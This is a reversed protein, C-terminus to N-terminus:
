SRQTVASPNIATTPGSLPPTDLSAHQDLRHGHHPYGTDVVPCSTRLSSPSTSGAILSRASTPSTASRRRVPLLPNQANANTTHSLPCASASRLARRKLSATTNRPARTLSHHRKRRPRLQQRLPHSAVDLIQCRPHRITRWIRRACHIRLHRRQRQRPTNRKQCRHAAPPLQPTCRPAASACDVQNPPPDSRPKTRSGASGPSEHTRPAPIRACTTPTTRLLFQNRMRRSCPAIASRRFPIM